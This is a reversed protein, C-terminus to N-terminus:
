EHVNGGKNYPLCITVSLGKDLGEVSLGYDTGHMNKIRRNVNLLGVSDSDDPSENRSLKANLIEVANHEMGTGNDRICILLAGGSEFVCLTITMPERNQFGHEFANEVIPQIMLKPIGMDSYAEACDIEYNILDNFRINQIQIYDRVYSLELQLDVTDYPNYVSYSLVKGLLTAISSVSKMDGCVALAKISQLTNNLFHPNIQHQLTKIQEKALKKQENEIDRTLQSISEVMHQSTLVIQDLEVMGTQDFTVQFNGEGIERYKNVLQNLPLLVSKSLVGAFVVATAITVLILVATFIFVTTHNDNMMVLGIIRWGSVDSYRSLVLYTNEGRGRAPVRFSEAGSELRDMFLQKQQESLIEGGPFIVQESEYYIATLVHSQETNRALISDLDFDCMLYSMAGVTYQEMSQIPTILSVTREVKSNLLYETDHFHTFLAGRERSVLFSNFWACAGFDFDMVPSMGYHYLSTNNAGIINANTIISLLDLQQFRDNVRRQNYLEVSYDIVEASNRYNVARIVDRDKAIIGAITQLQDFYRDMLLINSTVIRECYAYSDQEALNANYFTVVSGLIILIISFVTSYVLILRRRLTMRM